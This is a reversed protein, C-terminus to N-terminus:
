SLLFVRRRPASGALECGVLWRVAAWLFCTGPCPQVFCFFDATAVAVAIFHGAQRRSFLQLVLSRLFYDHGQSTAYGCWRRHTHDFRPLIGIQMSTRVSSHLTLLLKRKYCCCHWAFPIGRRVVQSTSGAKWTSTIRSLPAHKEEALVAALESTDLVAKDVDNTIDLWTLHHHGVMHSHRETDVICNTWVGLVTNEDFMCVSEVSDKGGTAVLCYVGGLVIRCQLKGVEKVSEYGTSCSFLYAGMDCRQSM